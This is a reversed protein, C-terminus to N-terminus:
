SGIVHSEGFREQVKLAVQKGVNTSGTFSVLGVREDKAIANSPSCCLLTVVQM